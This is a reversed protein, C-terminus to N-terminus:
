RTWKKGKKTSEGARDEDERGIEVRTKLEDEPVDGECDRAFDRRMVEKVLRGMIRKREQLPKRVTKLKPGERTEVLVPQGHEDFVPDDFLGLPRQGDARQYLNPKPAM